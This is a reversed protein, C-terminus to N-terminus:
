QWLARIEETIIDVADAMRAKADKEMRSAEKAADESKESIISAAKEEALSLNKRFEKELRAEEDEVARETEETATDIRYKSEAQANIILQASNEEARKIEKMADKIM